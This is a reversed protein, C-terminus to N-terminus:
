EFWKDALDVRHPNLSAILSEKRERKWGKLEKERAIAEKINQYEEFYIPDLIHAQVKVRKISGTDFAKYSDILAVPVIPCKAKQASKFPGGKFELLQNGKRSRTGEAFIIFNKGAKVEESVNNCHYLFFLRIPIEQFCYIM